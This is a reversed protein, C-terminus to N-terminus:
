FGQAALDALTEDADRLAISRIWYRLRDPKLLYICAGDYLRAVRTVNLGSDRKEQLLDDLKGRLEDAGNWDVSGNGFVYPQCIIGPLVLHQLVRLNNKRYVGNIRAVFVKNFAPLAAVGHEKMVRSSEGLRVLDRYYDVLDEAVMQEHATLNLARDAPYPLSEIDAGSLTTAKQTFLRVSTAAAYAKLATGESKIWDSVQKLKVVDAKAGAFGVVKNKYTLYDETWVDHYLDMHERVLLMPAAFRQKTRPGEVPKNEAIIIASRDIGTETIAESPLLAKGVIHDARRSVGSAGEVFGEGFDWKQATAYQGLTRQKGLREVFGLVRGGGLLNSRWVSDNTLAVERPVWHMDYHDIDFGQEAVARGSRRFTAHLIRRKPKPSQAEAVVVIVKTDANGKQFLGRVSVFDLVERVDWREFFKHRFKRSLQNYLLNYQQVMSLVGGDSLLKMSEHLFLYALQKDPLLGHERQYNAYAREAGETTLGSKFPPNGLVVGIQEGVLGQECADFFCAHHIRKGMLPPFLKVSARIEQPQLADCLALCLSFAALEVAGEDLDVGRIHTTLLKKLVTQNPRAWNNHYRWHLVLRKYAEVLFIGSGCAGDLIVEQKEALRDLRDWSLVEGVMLRVVFHPTYVAVSSDAVFLQYIHSILEVPLDAFSYRDWLRLQGRGDQREDMVQAFVSLQANTKVAEAEEERLTFVNGNFREELGHLLELLAPGNKMVDFFCTAGRLYKGFFDADFVKRAELYKILVALILLKRRLPKPLLQRRELEAHLDRIAKILAKQAADKSSLLEKCVAPDDWLTGNRLAEASWWAKAQQQAAIAGAIRLTDYPKFIPAEGGEFDPKHACRFLQVLGPTVRYALPVGGWSWLRKHLMAFDATTGSGDATYIFAQPQPPKGERPAEFFVADAEMQEAKEMVAVVEPAQGQKNFSRVLVVGDVMAGEQADIKLLWTGTTDM